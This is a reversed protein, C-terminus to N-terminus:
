IGASQLVLVLSVTVCKVPMFDEDSNVTLLTVQSTGHILVTPLRPINLCILLPAIAYHM